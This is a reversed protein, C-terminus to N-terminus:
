FKTKLIDAFVVAKMQPSMNRLSDAFARDEVPKNLSGLFSENENEYDDSEQFRRMMEELKENSDIIHRKDFSADVERNLEELNKNFEAELDAIDEDFFTEDFDDIERIERVPKEEKQTNQFIDVPLNPENEVKENIYDNMPEVERGSQTDGVMVPRFEASDVIDKGSSNLVIKGKINLQKKKKIENFILYSNVGIFACVVGTIIAILM